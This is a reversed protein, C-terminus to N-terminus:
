GQINEFASPESSWATCTATTPSPTTPLAASAPPSYKPSHVRQQNNNKPQLPTQTAHRVNLNLKFSTRSSEGHRLYSSSSSSPSSPCPNLTSLCPGPSAHYRPSESRLHTRLVYM